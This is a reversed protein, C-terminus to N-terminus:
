SLCCSVMLKKSQKNREHHLREESVVGKPGKSYVRNNQVNIPVELTFDKEDQFTMMNVRKLPFRSLFKKSRELRRQKTGAPIIVSRERKYNKLGTRKVIRRVSTRSIGLRKSIKRASKHTGPKGDQFLILEEVKKTNRSVTASLPRGSGKQRNTSGTELLKKILRNVTVVNWKKSPFEKCITKGRWEKNLFCAKIVARDDVTLQPM